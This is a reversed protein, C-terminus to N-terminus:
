HAHPHPGHRMAHIVMFLGIAVLPVALALSLALLLPHRFSVPISLTYASIALLSGGMLLSARRERTPNERADHNYQFLVLRCHECRAAPINPCNCWWKGSRWFDRQRQMLPVGHFITMGKPSTSWRIRNQKGLLYGPQLARGCRPCQDPHNSGTQPDPEGNVTM